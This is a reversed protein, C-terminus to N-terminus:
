TSGNELPVVPSTILESDSAQAFKESTIESKNSQASSNEAADSKSFIYNL